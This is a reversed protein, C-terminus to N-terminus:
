TGGVVARGVQLVLTFLTLFLTSLLTVMLVFGKMRGEFLTLAHDVRRQIDQTLSDEADRATAAKELLEILARAGDEGLKAQLVPPFVKVMQNMGGQADCAHMTSSPGPPKGCVRDDSKTVATGCCGTEGPVWTRTFLCERVREFETQSVPKGCRRSVEEIKHEEPWFQIDASDVIDCLARDPCRECNKLPGRGERM